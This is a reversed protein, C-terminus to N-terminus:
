STGLGGIRESLLTLVQTVQRRVTRTSMGMQRAIQDYSLRELRHLEFVRRERPTLQAITKCVIRTHECWVASEEPSPSPCVLVATDLPVQDDAKRVKRRRHQDCVINTAIRFLCAQPYQRLADIDGGKILKLRLEQMADDADVASYLSRSFFRMLMSEFGSLISLKEDRESSVHRSLPQNDTDEPM